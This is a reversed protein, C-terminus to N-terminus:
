LRLLDQGWQSAHARHRRGALDYSWTTTRGDRDHSVLQGMPGFTLTDTHPGRKIVGVRAAVDRSISSLLKGGVATGSAYGTADYTFQYEAGDHEVRALQRGAADYSYHTVRGDPDTSSLLRGLQDYERHSVGGLPDTISTVHALEDHGYLTEGGLPNIAKVLQGAQDHVFRRHGHWADRISAIRGAKDYGFRTLGRGPETREVVRGNVDFVTSAEADDPWHEAVIRIDADYAMEFREGGSAITASWRGARDYEYGRTQGAPESIMTPRGAADREITTVGGAADTLEIVRGCADYRYHTALGNVGVLETIRGLPDRVASKSVLSDAVRVPLGAEDYSTTREIGTPDTIGVRNGNVDYRLTMHGGTVDTWETVRSMADFGFQWVSGDPLTASSINGLDDRATAIERGLADITASELGDDGYEVGIRAGTPDIMASMRGAETHEFRSIAGDPDRRSELCGREDYRYETRNGLPTIAAVVRGAGDRELRATNGFANTTSILDGHADYALQLRVGTPDVVDTLLGESWGFVTVGGSPDVVRHPNIDEGRYDFTTVGTVGQADVTVSSLRDADDYVSHIRVGNPRVEGVQRGRKDFERVTVSGARDTFMVLNNWRDWATSQRHGESDVAGVLRGKADHIWSNSRTGDEDAVVTVGGPLYSYHSTRGSPSRQAIVQGQDNYSNDVEIVGDPDIVRVILGENNWEYSRSVGDVSAATLQGASNYNFAVCRGDSASLGTIKSAGPDGASWKLEISRHRRHTIRALRDDVWEYAVTGQPGKGEVLPRGADDFTFWGSKNDRIIWRAHSTRDEYLWLNEGVARDWDTGNRAFDIQRGTATTWAAGEAEIRLRSDAISSWGPGLSGLASNVSNYTRSFELEVSGGAFALDTEPEVFNGTTTNVPDDAYGSTQPDGVFQPAKVSIPERGERVGAVTLMAGISADPLSSMTGSGGAAEFGSAVVNAWNIDNVENDLFTANAKQLSSTKLPAWACEEAYHNLSAGLKSVHDLVETEYSSASSAFSRLADPNASTVSGSNGSTPEVRATMKPSEAKTLKRAKAGEPENNGWISEGVGDWFKQWDNRQAREKYWEVAIRRREREEAAMKKALKVEKALSDLVDAINRADNRAVTANEDFVDAYYGKFQELATDAYGRRVSAHENLVAELTKARSILEDATDFNFVVPEDNGHMEPNSVHAPGQSVDHSYSMKSAM